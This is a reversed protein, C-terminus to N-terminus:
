CTQPLAVNHRAAWWVTVLLPTPMRNLRHSAPGGERGGTAMQWTREHLRHLSKGPRRLRFKNTNVDSQFEPHCHNAFISSGVDTNITPKSQVHEIGLLDVLTSQFLLAFNIHIIRQKKWAHNFESTMTMWSTFCIHKIFDTILEGLLVQFGLFRFCTPLLLYFEQRRWQGFSPPRSTRWNDLCPSENLKSARSSCTLIGHPLWLFM